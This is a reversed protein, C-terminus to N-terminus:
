RARQALWGGVAGGALKLAHGAYYILPIEPPEPAFLQGLVQLVLYIAAGFAGMLLGHMVRRTLSRTLWWAVLVFAVFSGAVALVTVADESSGAFRMPIVALILLLEGLFGGLAIRGWRLSTTTM